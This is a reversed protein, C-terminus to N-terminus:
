ESINTVDEKKVSKCTVFQVARISDLAIHTVRALIRGNENQLSHLILADDGAIDVVQGEFPAEISKQFMRICDDCNLWDDDSRAVPGASTGYVEQTASPKSDQQFVRPLNQLKTCHQRIASKISSCTM